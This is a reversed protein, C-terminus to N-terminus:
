FVVIAGLAGTPLRRITGRRRRRREIFVAREFLVM